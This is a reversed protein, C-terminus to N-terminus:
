CRCLRELEAAEKAFMTVAVADPRDPREGFSILEKPAEVGMPCNRWYHFNIGVVYVVRTEGTWTCMRHLAGDFGSLALWTFKFRTHEVIPLTKLWHPTCTMTVVFRDGVQEPLGPPTSVFEFVEDGRVRLVTREGLDSVHERVIECEAPKYGLSMVLCCADDLMKAQREVFEAVKTIAEGDSGRARVNIGAFLDTVEQNVRMQMADRQMSAVQEPSYTAPPSLGYFSRPELNQWGDGRPVPNGLTTEEVMRLMTEDDGEAREVFELVYRGRNPNVDVMAVTWERGRWRVRQPPYVDPLEPAPEEYLTRSNTRGAAIGTGRAERMIQSSMSGGAQRQVEGLAAEVAIEIRRDFPIVPVADGVTPYKRDHESLKSVDLARMPPMQIPVSEGHDPRDIGVIRFHSVHVSLAIAPSPEWKGDPSTVAALEDLYSANVGGQDRLHQGITEAIEMVQHTREYLAVLARAVPGTYASCHVHITWPGDEDIAIIPGPQEQDRSMVLCWASLDSAGSMVFGRPEQLTFPHPQRTGDPLERELLLMCVDGINAVKPITVSLIATIM